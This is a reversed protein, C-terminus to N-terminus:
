FVLPIATCQFRLSIFHLVGLQCGRRAHQVFHAVATLAEIVKGFAHRFDVPMKETVQRHTFGTLTVERFQSSGARAKAESLRLVLMGFNSRQEIQVPLRREDATLWIRLLDGSKTLKKGDLSAPLLALCSFTGAPVSKTVPGSIRVAFPRIHKGDFVDITVTDGIVLKRQRFHYIAGIPDFLPESREVSGHRFILRQASEDIRSTDRLHYSGENLEREMRGLAATAPDFRMM